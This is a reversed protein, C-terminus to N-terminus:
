QLLLTKIEFYHILPHVCGGIKSGNMKRCYYSFFGDDCWGSLCCCECCGYYVKM